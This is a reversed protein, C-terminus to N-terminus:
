KIAYVIHVWTNLNAEVSAKLLPLAYDIGRIDLLEHSIILENDNGSHAGSIM